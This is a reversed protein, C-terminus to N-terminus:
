KAQQKNKRALEAKVERFVPGWIPHGAEATELRFKPNLELAKRFEARCQTKQQSACNIFALYKHATAQDNKSALGLDLANRFNKAASKYDGDEYNNKGWTFEQEAKRAAGPQPKGADQEAKSAPEETKRAPAEETKQPAPKQPAPKEPASKKAPAHTCAAAAALLLILLATRLASLRCNM